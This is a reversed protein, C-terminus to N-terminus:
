TTGRPGRRRDPGRRRPRAAGRAGSAPGPGLRRAHDERRPVRPARGDRRRRRARPHGRAPQDRRPGRRLRADDPPPGQRDGRRGELAGRLRRSRWSAPRSDPLGLLPDAHSRSSRTPTTTRSRSSRSAARPRASSCSGGPRGISSSRCTTSRRRHRRGARRPGQPRPPGQDRAGPDGGRRARGRGRHGRAQRRGGQRPRRRAGPGQHRGQGAGPRRPVARRRRPGPDATQAVEWAPVPLGQAVLLSKADAEHIKVRRRAGRASPRRGPLASPLRAGTARLRNPVFRAPRRAMSMSRPWTPRAAASPRAHLSLEHLSRSPAIMVGEGRQCAGRDEPQVSGGPEDEPVGFLRLVRHLVREDAGPAIQGRQAIGVAEVRPEVAQEYRAQM